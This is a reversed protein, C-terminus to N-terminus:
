ESRLAILPDVKAARRAPIWCALLAVAALLITVGAFTAPDTAEVGFLLSSLVRTLAFAGALGIVIGILVLKLAQSIILKLVDRIQAGLTMRVGIERTRQGVAYTMVSYLGMSALLLALLGCITGTGAALRPGWYDYSLIEDAMRLDFVPVRSDLQGIERRVSEAVAKLDGAANASVLLTMGSGLHQFRPLFLHPQPAEYLTDYLANKVVGVIEILSSQPNLTRIRKGLANGEGGYFRHAYEQNVIAVLPSDSNDRETFDRGSVLPTRITEFYRPSVINCAIKDGENPLPDPEGEKVVTRTDNNEELPPRLTLAAARVGPQAEVRKLLESHFRKATEHTYGLSGPDVMMMVLNETSFGLEKNVANNWSRLFLGACVLVICSIAVQAVVLAGNLNWLRGSRSQGAVDSKLVAILDPRSALLAPALGFILITSLTVVSSWKL